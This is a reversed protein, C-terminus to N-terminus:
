NELAPKCLWSICLPLSNGSPRITDGVVVNIACSVPKVVGKAGSFATVQTTIPLNVSFM